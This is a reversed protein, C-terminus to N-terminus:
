IGSPSLPWPLGRRNQLTWPRRPSIRPYISWFQRPQSAWAPAPPALGSLPQRTLKGPRLPGLTFNALDSSASPGRTPDLLGAPDRSAEPVVATNFSAAAAPGDTAPQVMSAVALGGHGMLALPPGVTTPQDTYFSALGPSAVMITTLMMGLITMCALSSTLASGGTAASTNSWWKLGKKRERGAATISISFQHKDSGMSFQLQRGMKPNPHM